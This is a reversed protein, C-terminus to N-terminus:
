ADLTAPSKRLFALFHKCLTSVYKAWTSKRDIIEELKIKEMSCSKANEIIWDRDLCKSLLQPSTFSINITKMKASTLHSYPCTFHCGQLPVSFKYCHQLPAECPKALWVETNAASRGRLGLYFSGFFITEYCRFSSIHITLFYKKSTPIERKM